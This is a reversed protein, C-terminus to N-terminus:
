EPVDSRSSEHWHHLFHWELFMVAFFFAFGLVTAAAVLAFLYDIELQAYAYTISYGLGGEGVRSSGAFLEGIIAGVVAIGASIRVGVFLNPLANPLRLRFLVQARTAKHMLFLDILNRDVSILGQTTNAIVPPLCIIFTIIAVSYVGSGAWMIILPAIAVIPVTQLLITYPFFLRRLWRWQAFLLAVIVGVVISGVLGMAAAETTLWLSQMLAPFRKVVATAVPWPGPLIYPPIKLVLVVFHWLALLGVLVILSNIAFWLRRRV